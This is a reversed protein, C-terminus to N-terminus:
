LGLDTLEAALAEAAANTISKSAKKTTKKAIVISHSAQLAKVFLCIDEPMLLEKTAPNTDIFAKTDYLATSVDGATLAEQLFALSKQLHQALEPADAPLEKGQWDGIESTLTIEQDLLNVLKEAPPNQKDFNLAASQIPSTNQQPKTADFNLAIAKPKNLATKLDSM